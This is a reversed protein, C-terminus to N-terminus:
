TAASPRVTKVGAAFPFCLCKITALACFSFITLAKTAPTLALGRAHHRVFLQVGLRKELGAVALSISPQSVNLATAAATASRHDAAGLFYRLERLSFPM